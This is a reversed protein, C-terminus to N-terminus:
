ACLIGQHQTSPGPGFPDDPMSVNEPDLRTIGSFSESPFKRRHSRHVTVIVTRERKGVKRYIGLAEEYSARAQGLENKKLHVNGVVTLAAAV